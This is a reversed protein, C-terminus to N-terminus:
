RIMGLASKFTRAGKELVDKKVTLRHRLRAIEEPEEALFGIEDDSMEGVVFPSITTKALDRVLNREIIQKTVAATFYTVEEKYYARQKYLAEEASALDLANNSYLQKIGSTISTRELYKRSLKGGSNFLASDESLRKIRSEQALELFRPEYTIPHDRTDLIIRKLEAKAAKLRLDLAPEINSSELRQAIDAPASARIAAATLATCMSAVKDIHFSAITEWNEAEDWFLRSIILPNFTGPLERGRTRSLIDRVRGIAESDTLPEQLREFRAYEPDLQGADIDEQSVSLQRFGEVSGDAEEDVVRTRHGYRRMTDAFQLNLHQITARLCVMNTESDLPQDLDLKAFFPDEYNGDLASKVIGHYTASIAILFKRQEPLTARAEGLKELECDTDHLKEKLERQFGPLETKLHRLLLRSLRTLLADIGLIDRLLHRYRGKAFFAKEAANREAFTWHMEESSRNRLMHWGLELRVNNNQAVDIWSSEADSGPKLEDPKTIIGLTRHGHPDVERCKEMIVQNAFDNKASVVALIITRTEKIYDNVLDKILEVDQKSQSRTSTHILGPLDVLTLHPRSPGSIEISLVDRAFARATGEANDGDLGMLTTAEETLDPLESFHAISPAWSALREQEDKPRTKDPIIKTVISESVSCRLIIETAFRTCLNEKRPFPIQTIAELVSSKGSSQDGCVVLQPLQVVSGLGDRRLEDVMDLIRRSENSQLSSLSATNM